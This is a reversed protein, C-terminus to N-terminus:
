NIYNEELVGFLLNFPMICTHSVLYVMQPAVMAGVRAATNQFGYGINRVVTPYVETSLVSLSIWAAAIGLKSTLAFGNLLQGKLDPDISTVEILAVGLAGLACVVFFLIGTKRRGFKNNLCITVANAPMEVISLLSMNLYINGSLKQVNFSIAYYVYACTMWMFAHLLTNKRLFRSKFIDLLTYTRKTEREMGKLAIKELDSLDPVPVGNFKAMTEIVKKADDLKKHSVLWRFSEPM